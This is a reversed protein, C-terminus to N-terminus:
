DPTISDYHEKVYEPVGPAYFLFTTAQDATMGKKKMTKLVRNLADTEQESLQHGGSINKLTDLDLENFEFEM